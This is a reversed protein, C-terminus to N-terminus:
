IYRGSTLRDEEGTTLYVDSCLLSTSHYKFLSLYLISIGSVLISHAHSVAEKPPLTRIDERDLMARWEKASLWFRTYHRAYMRVPVPVDLDLSEDAVHEVFSLFGDLTLLPDKQENRAHWNLVERLPPVQVAGGKKRGKKGVVFDPSCKEAVVANKGGDPFQFSGFLELAACGAEVTTATPCEDWPQMQERLNIWEQLASGLAATQAERQARVEAPTTTSAGAPTDPPTPTSALQEMARKQKAISSDLWAIADRYERAFARVYMQGTPHLLALQRYMSANFFEVDVDKIASTTIAKSEKLQMRGTLFERVARQVKDTTVNKMIYAVSARLKGDRDNFVFEPAEGTSGKTLPSRSPEVEITTTARAGRTIGWPKHPRTEVTYYPESAAREDRFLFMFPMQGEGNGRMVFDFFCNWFLHETRRVIELPNLENSGGDSDKLEQQILTSIRAPKVYLVKLPEKRRPHRVVLEPKVPSECIPCATSSQTQKNLWGGIIEEGSLELGCSGCTCQTHISDPLEHVVTSEPEKAEDGSDIELGTQALRHFFNALPSPIAPALLRYFVEFPTTLGEHVCFRCVALLVQNSPIAAAMAIMNHLQRLIVVLDGLADREREARVAIAKKIDAETKGQPMCAKNTRRLINQRQQAFLLFWLTYVAGTNSRAADRVSAQLSVQEEQKLLQIREPLVSYLSRVIAMSKEQLELKRYDKSSQAVEVTQAHVSERHPTGFLEHNLKPFIDICYPGEGQLNEDSPPPCVYVSNENVFPHARQRLDATVRSPYLRPRMQAMAKISSATLGRIAGSGGAPAGGVGVSSARAPFSNSNNNPLRREQKSLAVCWDFFLLEEHRPTVSVRSLVFDAFMQTKRFQQGFARMEPALNEVYGEMDFMCSLDFCNQATDEVLLVFQRYDALFRVLQRLFAVKM